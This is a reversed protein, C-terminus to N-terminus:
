KLEELFKELVKREFAALRKAIDKNVTWSETSCFIVIVHDFHYGIGFSNGLVM